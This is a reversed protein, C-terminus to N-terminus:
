MDWIDSLKLNSIEKATKEMGYKSLKVKVEVSQLSDMGLRGLTMERDSCKDESVGLLNLLWGRFSVNNHSLQLKKELFSSIVPANSGLIDHISALSVDINQIDVDMADAVRMDLNKSVFGVNGIAGWQIVCSKEFPLLLRRNLVMTEMSSNGYSYNSQGANGFLSSISSFGCFVDLSVCMQRSVEDLNEFAKKKIDICTRWKVETMNDFLSDQLVMAVHWIGKLAGEFGELLQRCQHIDVVDLNSIIANASGVRQQLSVFRRKQFGDKLGARSTLV